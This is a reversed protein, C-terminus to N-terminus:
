NAAPVKEAYDVVLITFMTEEAELRLGLQEQVATFISGRSRGDAPADDPTWNLTFDYVGKIGTRDVVPRGLKFVPGSLRDALTSMSIARASLHDDGFIFAGDAASSQAHLKTGRKGVVLVYSALKKNESHTKLAFREALLTRMMERIDDRSTEPPFTASIDFKEADLWGPGSLEYDRGDAIGYAFAICERLSINELVIRGGSRSISGGNAGTQNPRVSAVEFAARRDANQAFMAGMAAMSFWALANM